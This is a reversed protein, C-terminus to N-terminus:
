RQRNKANKRDATDASRDKGSKAAKSPRGASGRNGKSLIEDLVPKVIAEMMAYGEPTPHIGDAALEPSLGGEGNDMASFYDLYTCGNGAAWDALLANLERVKAPVDAIDTRWPYHSAPLVSCIVVEIGAAKALEAMSFINGAIHPISIYGDNQAIDNTGALIVAVKPALELVDPRFRVLMQSTVQGSIGRGVYDNDEFFEPRKAAWGDTISNGMFVVEPTVTLEGNAKEYRGFGAWDRVDDQADVATAMGMIAALILIPKKM